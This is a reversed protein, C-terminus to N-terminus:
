RRRVTINVTESVSGAPSSCTVSFRVTFSSGDFPSYTTASRSCDPLGATAALWQGIVADLANRFQTVGEFPITGVVQCPLSVYGSVCITVTYSGPPLNTPMGGGDDSASPYCLGDSKCVPHDGGCCNDTGCLTDCGRTWCRGDPGCHPYDLPCTGDGCRDPPHCREDSGCVPFNGGCCTAGCLDTCRETWCRGDPGCHPYDAPCVGGGCRDPPDLICQGQVCQKGRPCPNAADCAHTCTGGSTLCSAVLHKFCRTRLRGKSFTTTCRDRFTRCVAQCQRVLQRRHSRGGSGCGLFSSRCDYADASPAAAGLLLLALVVVRWRVPFPRVKMM